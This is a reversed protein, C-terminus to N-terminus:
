LEPKEETAQPWVELVFLPWPGFHGLHLGVIDDGLPRRDWRVDAAGGHGHGGSDPVTGDHHEGTGLRRARRLQRHYVRLSSVYIAIIVAGFVFCAGLSSRISVGPQSSWGLWFLSAPLLPAANIAPWLRFEPPVPAGRVHEAKGRGWSYLGLVGLAFFTAGAAIAAFWSGTQGASLGYAEKFLYDFGWQLFFLLIYLLVLHAGLVAIVPETTLFKAPSPLIKKLRTLLSGAWASAIPAIVPAAANACAIIPFEFARKVPRFQDGVDSLAGASLAGSSIGFLYVAITFNGPTRGVGFEGSIQTDMTSGAAGARAQAFALLSLAAINKSRSTMHWNWPDLPDLPNDERSRRVVIKTAGDWAFHAIRVARYAGITNSGIEFNAVYTSKVKWM